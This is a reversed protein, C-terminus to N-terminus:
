NYCINVTVLFSYYIEKKFPYDWSIKLYTKQYREIAWVNSGGNKPENKLIIDIEHRKKQPTM